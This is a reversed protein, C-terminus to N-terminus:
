ACVRLREPLVAFHAELAPSVEGDVELLFPADSAVRLSSTLFSRTGPRNRFRGFLLGALTSLLRLRGMGACLAVGLLGDAPAVPLDYRLSGSLWPSKLVSLSSLSVEEDLGDHRLRASFDRHRVVARLASAAIATAVGRGPRRGASFLANGEAVVGASASVALLTTRETGSPDVTRVRVLDHPTARAADLRLPVPDDGPRLPKVFDNSSGLAAVGLTIEGLAANRPGDVLAELLAHVTGDGGAAVFTRTGGALASDIAEKWMGFADLEVESAEFRTAVARRVLALARVDAARGAAPNRVVLAAPLSM